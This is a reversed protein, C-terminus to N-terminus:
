ARPAPLLAALQGQKRRIRAELIAPPYPDAAMFEAALREDLKRSASRVINRVTEDPPDLNIPISAEYDISQWEAGPSSQYSGRRMVTVEPFDSGFLMAGDDIRPPIVAKWVKLPEVPLPAAKASSGRFLAVLPALSLGALFHRRTPKM